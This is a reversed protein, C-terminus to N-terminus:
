DPNKGECIEKRSSERAILMLEKVGIIFLTLSMATVTLKIWFDSQGYFYSQTKSANSMIWFYPDNKSLQMWVLGAFLVLSLIVYVWAIIKRKKM